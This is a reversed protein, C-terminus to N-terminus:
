TCMSSLAGECCGVMNKLMIFRLQARLRRRGARRVAPARGAGGRVPLRAAEAPEHVHVLHAAPGVSGLLTMLKVSFIESVPPGIPM